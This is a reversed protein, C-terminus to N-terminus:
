AYTEVNLSPAQALVALEEEGIAIDQMINLYETPIPAASNKRAHVLINDGSPQTGTPARNWEVISMSCVTSATYAKSHEDLPAQWYGHTMDLKIFCKPKAKGIRAKM